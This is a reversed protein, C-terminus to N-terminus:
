RAVIELLKIDDCPACSVIISDMKKIIKQKEALKKQLEKAERRWEDRENREWDKYRQREWDIESRKWVKPPRSAKHDQLLEWAFDVDDELQARLEESLPTALGDNLLTKDRAGERSKSAIIEIIRHASKSSNDHKTITAGKKQFSDWVGNSGVRDLGGLSGLPDDPALNEWMTTAIVVRSYADNGLIRELLRARKRENGSIVTHTAPHLLILGDLPRNKTILQEEVLWEAIDRLIEVDSRADDDFGPTDILVINQNKLKFSVALPDQTCPDVGYGIVVDKGSAISTFTSKGAGTVGLLVITVRHNDDTPQTM